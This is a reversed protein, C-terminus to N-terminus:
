RGRGENPAKARKEPHPLTQLGAVTFSFVGCSVLYLPARCAEAKATFALAERLAQFSNHKKFRWNRFDHSSIFCYNKWSFCFLGLCFWCTKWSKSKYLCSQYPNFHLLFNFLLVSSNLVFIGHDIFVVGFDNNKLCPANKTTTVSM